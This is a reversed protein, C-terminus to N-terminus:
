FISLSVTRQGTSSTLHLRSDAKVTFGPYRGRVNSALHSEVPRFSRTVDDVPVDRCNRSSTSLLRRHSQSVDDTSPRFRKWPSRVFDRRIVPSLDRSGSRVAPRNQDRDLDPNNNMMRRVTAVQTEMSVSRQDVSDIL